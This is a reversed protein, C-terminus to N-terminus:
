LYETFQDVSEIRDIEFNSSANKYFNHKEKQSVLHGIEPLSGMSLPLLSPRETQASLIVAPTGRVTPKPVLTEVEGAM